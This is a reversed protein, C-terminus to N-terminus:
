DFKEYIVNMFELKRRYYEQTTLGNGSEKLIRYQELVEPNDILYEHFKKGKIYEPSEENLLFIEIKKGEETTNFRARELPYYGRATGFLESLLIISNDFEKAPVPIHIDIEDQGSICLNSAGRHLVPQQRGLKSQIFSKLREFKEHCSEDFPVISIISEISLGQVWKEQKETLM